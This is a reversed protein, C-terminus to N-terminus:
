FIVHTMLNRSPRRQGAMMAWLHHRGPRWKGTRDVHDRGASYESLVNSRSILFVLGGRRMAWSTPSVINYYYNGLYWLGFYILLPVDIGGIGGGRTSLGESSSGGTAVASAAARLETNVGARGNPVGRPAKVFAPTTRSLTATPSSQLAFASAAAAMFLSLTVSLKM